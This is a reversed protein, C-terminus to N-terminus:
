PTAGNFCTSYSRVLEQTYGGSNTLVDLPDGIKGTLNLSYIVQPVGVVTVYNIMRKALCDCAARGVAGYPSGAIRSACEHRVGEEIPQMACPFYVKDLFKGMSARGDPTKLDNMLTLDSMNMYAQMGTSVCACLYGRQLPNLQTLALNNSVCGDYFKNAQEVTVPTEGAADTNPRPTLTPTPTTDNPVLLSPPTSRGSVYPKVAPTTGGGAAAYAPLLTAACLFLAIILSTIRM